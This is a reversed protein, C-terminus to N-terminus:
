RTGGSNELLSPVLAQSSILFGCFSLSRRRLFGHLLPSALIPLNTTGHTPIAWLHLHLLLLSHSHTSFQLPIQLGPSHGMPSLGLPSSNPGLNRPSDGRTIYIWVLNALLSKCFFSLLVLLALAEQLSFSYSLALNGLCPYTYTSTFVWQLLSSFLLM